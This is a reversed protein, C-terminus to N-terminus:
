YFLSTNREEVGSSFVTTGEEEGRRNKSVEEGVPQMSVWSTVGADEEAAAGGAGLPAARKWLAWDSPVQIRLLSGFVAKGDGPKANNQDRLM